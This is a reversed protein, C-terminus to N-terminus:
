IFIKSMYIFNSKMLFTSPCAWMSRLSQKKRWKAQILFSMPSYLILSALYWQNFSDLLKKSSSELFIGEVVSQNFSIPYVLIYLIFWSVNLVSSCQPPQHIWKCHEAPTATDQGVRGLPVSTSSSILINTSSWWAPNLWSGVWLLYTQQELRSFIITDWKSDKVIPM